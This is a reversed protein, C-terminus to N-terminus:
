FFEYDVFQRALSDIMLGLKLLFFVNTYNIFVLYEIEDKGYAVAPTITKYIMCFM